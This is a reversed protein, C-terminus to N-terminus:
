FLRQLYINGILFLLCPCLDSSAFVRGYAVIATMSTHSSFKNSCISNIATRWREKGITAKSVSNEPNRLKLGRWAESSSRYRSRLNLTSLRQMRWGARDADGKEISAEPLWVIGRTAQSILKLSKQGQRQSKIM